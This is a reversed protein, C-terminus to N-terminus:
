FRKIGPSFNLLNPSQKLWEDSKVFAKFGFPPLSIGDICGSGVVIDEYPPFLNKLATGTPFASTIEQGENCASKWEYELNSFILWVM